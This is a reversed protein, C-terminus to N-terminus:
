QVFPRPPKLRKWLFAVYAARTREAPEHPFADELFSTPVTSVAAVLVDRSFASAAAADADSLNGM